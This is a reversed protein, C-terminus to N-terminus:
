KATKASEKKGGEKKGGNSSSTTSPASSSSSTSTSVAQAVVPTATVTAAPTATGEIVNAATAKKGKKAGGKAPTAASAVTPTSTGTVVTAAVVPQTVSTAATAIVPSASTATAVAITPTSSSSSSTTTSSSTSPSSSSSAPSTGARQAAVFIIQECLACTAIANVSRLTQENLLELLVRRRRELQEFATRGKENTPARAGNGAAASVAALADAIRKLRVLVHKQNKAGIALDRALLADFQARDTWVVSREGVSLKNCKNPECWLCFEQVNVNDMLITNIMYPLLTSVALELMPEPEVDNEANQIGVVRLSHATPELVAKFQSVKPAFVGATQAAKEASIL